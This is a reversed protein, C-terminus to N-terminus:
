LVRVRLTGSALDIAGGSNNLLIATVVNTASVYASIALGALDLSFSALAFQGLTAGTVAVTTTAADGDAISGPDWVASASAVEANLTTAAAGNISTKLKGSATDYYLEATGSAAAPPVPYATGATLGRLALKRRAM